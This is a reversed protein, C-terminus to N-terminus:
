LHVLSIAGKFMDTILESLKSRHCLTCNREFCMLATNSAQRILDLVQNVADTSEPLKENEYWELLAFVDSDSTLNSRLSSDIGLEPLHVYKVGALELSNSLAKKSFGSKRSIPNRRVDILIDVDNRTIEDLFDQQNRGEYGITLLTRAKLSM